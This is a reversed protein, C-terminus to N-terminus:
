NFLEIKLKNNNFLEKDKNTVIVSEGELKSKITPSFSKILDKDAQSIDSLENKLLKDIDNYEIIYENEKVLETVEESTETTEEKDTWVKGDQEREIGFKDDLDKGVKNINDNAKKGSKTAKDVIEEAVGQPNEVTKDYFSIDIWNRLNQGTYNDVMFIVFFLFLIGIVGGTIVRGLFRRFYIVILVIVVWIVIAMIPTESQTALLIM